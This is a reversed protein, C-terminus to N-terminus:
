FCSYPNFTLVWGRVHCVVKLVGWRSVECLISKLWSFLDLPPLIIHLIRQCLHRSWFQLIVMRWYSGSRQEGSVSM